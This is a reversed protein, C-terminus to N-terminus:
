NHEIYALNHFYNCILDFVFHLFTCIKNPQMKFYYITQLTIICYNLETLHLLQVILTYADAKAWLNGYEDVAANFIRQKVDCIVCM